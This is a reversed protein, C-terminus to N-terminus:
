RTQRSSDMATSSCAAFVCISLRTPGVASLGSFRCWSRTSLGSRTASVLASKRASSSLDILLHSLRNFLDALLCASCSCHVHGCVVVWMVVWLGSWLQVWGCGAVGFWVWDCGIVCVSVREGM